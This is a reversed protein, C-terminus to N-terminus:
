NLPEQDVMPQYLIRRLDDEFLPKAAFHTAGLEMARSIDAPHESSSLVVIKIPSKNQHRLRQFGELFGFGDLVPMNLDLFIVDPLERTGAYYESLLDIADKGNDVTHINEVPIGIKKLLYQNLFQFAIDDDILLIHTTSPM